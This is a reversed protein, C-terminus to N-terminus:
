TALYEAPAASAQARLWPAVSESMSLARLHTEVADACVALTSTPDGNRFADAYSGTRHRVLLVGALPVIAIPLRAINCGVVLRPFGPERLVSRYEGFIM